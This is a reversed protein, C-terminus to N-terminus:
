PKEEAFEQRIRGTHEGLAPVPGGKVERRVPSAVGDFPGAPTDVTMRRLAGHASLDSVTSVNSWALSAALLAAAGPFALFRWRASLTSRRM